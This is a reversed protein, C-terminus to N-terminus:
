TLTHKCWGGNLVVDIPPAGENIARVEIAITKKEKAAEKISQPMLDCFEYLSRLIERNPQESVLLQPCPTCFPSIVLSMKEVERKHGAGLKGHQL